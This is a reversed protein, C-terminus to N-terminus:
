LPIYGAEEVFKQGEASCVYDIVAKADGTANGLTILFLGRVLKYTGDLATEASALVNDVSVECVVKTDISSIYGLGIYGIAGKTAEVSNVMTGNANSSQFMTMDVKKLGVISDFCDRTGSGAERVQPKIELDNGGLQNWNTVEGSYIRYLDNISLNTVGADLDVIIAVADKGIEYGVLGQSKENDSLDRSIMGIDATGNLTDNVGQSSGNGGVQLNAAKYNQAVKSMVPTVTTSGIVSLTPVDDDNGNDGSLVMYGGVAAVLIVVVAIGAIIKNDLTKCRSIM